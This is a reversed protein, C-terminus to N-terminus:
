SACRAVAEGGVEREFHDIIQTRTPNAGSKQHTQTPLAVELALHTLIDGGEAAKPCYRSAARPGAADPVHFEFLRPYVAPTVIVRLTALHRTMQNTVRM